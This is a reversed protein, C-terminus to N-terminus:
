KGLIKKLGYAGLGALLLTLGGDLPVGAPPPPPPPPPPPQAFIVQAAFPLVLLAITLVLYRWNLQNLNKMRRIKNKQYLNQRSNSRAM